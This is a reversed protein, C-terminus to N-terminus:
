RLRESAFDDERGEQGPGAAAVALADVREFSSKVNIRDLFEDVDNGGFVHALCTTRDHRGAACFLRLM